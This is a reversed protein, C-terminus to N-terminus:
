FRYTAMILHTVYGLILIGATKGVSKKLFQWSLLEFDRSPAQVIGFLILILTLGVAHAMGIPVFLLPVVFWSWMMKLSFANFIVIVAVIVLIALFKAVKNTSYSFSDKLM